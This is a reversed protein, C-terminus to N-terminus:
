KKDREKKENIRGEFRLLKHRVINNDYIIGLDSAVLRVDTYEEIINNLVETQTKPTPNEGRLIRAYKLCAQALESCEEALM